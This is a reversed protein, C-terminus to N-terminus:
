SFLRRAVPSGAALDRQALQEYLQSLELGITTFADPHLPQGNDDSVVADLGIALARGAACWASYPDDQAPTQPVDFALVFEAIRAQKSEDDLAVQSDFQISLM